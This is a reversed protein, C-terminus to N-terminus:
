NSMESARNPSPFGSKKKVEGSAMVGFVDAWILTLLLLFEVVVVGLGFLASARLKPNDLSVSIKLMILAALVAVFGTGTVRAM